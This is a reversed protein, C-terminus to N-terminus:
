KVLLNVLNTQKNPKISSLLKANRWWKYTSILTLQHKTRSWSRARCVCVRRITWISLERIFLCTHFMIIPVSMIRRRLLLDGGRALQVRWGDRLLVRWRWLRRNRFRLRLKILIKRGKKRRRLIELLIPHARDGRGWRSKWSPLRIWIRVWTCGASKSFRSLVSIM